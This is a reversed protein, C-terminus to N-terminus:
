RTSDVTAQVPTMGCGTWWELDPVAPVTAQKHLRAESRTTPASPPLASLCWWLSCAACRTRQPGYQASGGCGLGLSAMAPCCNGDPRTSGGARSVAPPRDHHNWSPGTGQGVPVLGFREGLRGPELGVGEINDAAQIAIGG